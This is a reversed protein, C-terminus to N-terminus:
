PDEGRAVRLGKDTLKYWHGSQEWMREAIAKEVLKRASRISAGSVRLLTADRMDQILVWQALTPRWHKM